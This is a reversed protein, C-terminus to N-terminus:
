RPPNTLPPFVVYPPKKAPADLINHSVAWRPIYHGRSVQGKRGTRESMTALCHLANLGNFDQGLSTATYEMQQKGCALVM